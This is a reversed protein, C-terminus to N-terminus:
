HGPYEGELGAGTISRSFTAPYPGLIQGVSVQPLRLFFNGPEWSWVPGLAAMAAM